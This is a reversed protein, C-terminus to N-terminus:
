PTGKEPSAGKPYATVSFESKPIGGVAKSRVDGPEVKQFFESRELAQFFDYIAEAYDAIGRLHVAGGKRYSFSTLEVSQPLLLSIERLAELASYTRDAYQEFSRIKVSLERVENAPGELAAVKAKLLSHQRHIYGRLLLFAVLGLLWITVFTLSAWTLVSRLTRRQELVAWEAPALNLTLGRAEIWRKALGEARTPLESLHRVHVAAGGCTERLRAVLPHTSASSASVASEAIRPPSVDEALWLGIEVHASLGMEAEASALSFGVEEALESYYEDESLGQRGGLTRLIVPLGNETIILFASEPEVLVAVFAGHEPIETRERLVHYWGLIDVDLRHPWVGASRFSEGLATIWEREVAAVLVRSANERSSLVECSVAMQEAPFPAFKDVQLEVMSQMEVPDTTPLDMVRMLVREAPLGFSIHGRPKERLWNKLAEAFGPAEPGKVDSDFPLLGSDVLEWGNKGHRFTSWCLTAQRFTLGTILQQAM